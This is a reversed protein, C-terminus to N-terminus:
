EFSFFGVSIFKMNILSNKCARQCLRFSFRVAGCHLTTHTGLAKAGMYIYLVLAMTHIIFHVYHETNIEPRIRTCTHMYSHTHTRAQTHRDNNWKIYTYRTREDSRGVLRGDTWGNTHWKYVSHRKQARLVIIIHLSDDNDNDDDMCVMGSSPVACCKITEDNPCLVSVSAPEYLKEHQRDLPM